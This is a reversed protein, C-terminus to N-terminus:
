TADKYFMALQNGGSQTVQMRFDAGCRKLDAELEAASYPPHVEVVMNRVRGIWAGCDAFLEREAGEIDCKLIDIPDCVNAQQLLSQVTTAQIRDGDRAEIMRYRWADTSRDLSVMRATGAVCAEIITVAPMGDTPAVNANMRALRTSDADPEVGVIRAHPFQRQWRRISMGVSAGLDLITRVEGRVGALFGDYEQGLFIEDMVTFDSSGVRVFFPRPDDRLHLRVVSGRGPFWGHTLNSLLRHYSEVIWDTPRAYRQRRM